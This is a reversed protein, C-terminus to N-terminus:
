IEAKVKLRKRIEEYRRTSGVDLCGIQESTARVTLMKMKQRPMVVEFQNSFYSFDFHGFEWELQKQASDLSDSQTRSVNIQNHPTSQKALHM